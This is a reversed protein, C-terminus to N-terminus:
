YIIMIECERLVGGCIKLDGNMKAGLLCALRKAADKCKSVPDPKEGTKDSM